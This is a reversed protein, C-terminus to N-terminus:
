EDARWTESVHPSTDCSGSRKKKRGTIAIIEARCFCAVEGGIYNLVVFLSLIVFSSHMTLSRLPTFGGEQRSAKRPASYSGRTQQFTIRNGHGREGDKTEMFSM